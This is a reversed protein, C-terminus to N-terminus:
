SRPSSRRDTQGALGHLVQDVLIAKVKEIRKADLIPWDLAHLAVSKARQFIFLPGMLVFTALIAEESDGPKGIIRGVLGSFVEILRKIVNQYLIKFAPGPSLQERSVFMLWSNNKGGGVIRETALGLIRSLSTIYAEEAAGEPPMMAAVTSALAEVQPAVTDTIHNACALYLEKKGGFYYQISGLNVKARRAIMRTSAGDYGRDAFVDIAAAIIKSRTRDGPAYGSAQQRAKRAKAAM